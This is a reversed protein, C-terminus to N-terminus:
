VSLRFNPFDTFYLRGVYSNGRQSSFTATKLLRFNPSNEEFLFDSTPSTPLIYGVWM